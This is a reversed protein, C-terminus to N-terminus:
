REPHLTGPSLPTQPLSYPRFQLKYQLPTLKEKKKFARIFTGTDNFGTSEAIRSVSLETEVLLAKAQDLRFCLLYDHITTGTHKKFVTSFYCRSFGFLKALYETTLPQNYHATIYDCVQMIKDNEEHQINLIMEHLIDNLLRSVQVECTSGKERCYEICETIYTRILPTIQFVCGEGLEYLYQCLECSNGGTFHIFRFEWPVESVSFYTHLDMCDILAFHNEDLMYETDRYQLKGCGQITQLLLISKYSHRAIYFDPNCIFHGSWQSFFYLKEAIASPTNAYREYYSCSENLICEANM